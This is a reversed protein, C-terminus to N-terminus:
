GVIAVARLQTGEAALWCPSLWVALGRRWAEGGPRAALGRRWAEGGPRGLPLVPQPDGEVGRPRSTPDSSSRPRAM